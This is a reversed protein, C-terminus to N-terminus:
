EFASTDLFSSFKLTPSSHLTFSELIRNFETLSGNTYVTNLTYTTHGVLVIFGELKLLESGDTIDGNFKIAYYEKIKGPKTSFNQIGSIDNKLKKALEELFAKKFEGDSDSLNSNLFSQEFNDYRVVYIINGTKDQADYSYGPIFGTSNDEKFEYSAPFSMTLENDPSSLQVWESKVEEVSFENDTKKVAFKEWDNAISTSIGILAGAIIEIVIFAIIFRTGEHKIKIKSKIPYYLFGSAIAIVTVIIKDNTTKIFGQAMAVVLGAVVYGGLLKKKASTPKQFEQKNVENNTILPKEKMEKKVLNDDVLIIKKGCRNCFIDKELLPASCNSCYQKM